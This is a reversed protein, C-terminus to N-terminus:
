RQCDRVSVSFSHQEGMEMARWKEEHFVPSYILVEFPFPYGRQYILVRIMRM